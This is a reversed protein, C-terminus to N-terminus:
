TSLPCRGARNTPQSGHTSGEPRETQQQGRSDEASGVQSRARPKTRADTVAPDKAATAKKKKAAKGTGIASSASTAPGASVAV